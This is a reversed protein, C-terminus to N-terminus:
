QDNGIQPDGTEGPHGAAKWAPWGEHMIRCRTFGFSATLYNYLNHSADCAGGGCYIVVTDNKDLANLWVLGKGALLEDVSLQFANQVHGERFEDIHRSDIFPKGQQFLAFADAISINLGDAAPAPAAPTPSATGPTGTAQNADPTPTATGPTTQAPTPPVVPPPQTVAALAPTDGKLLIPFKLKVLSHAGALCGALTVIVALQPVMNSM